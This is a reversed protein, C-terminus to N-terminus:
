THISHHVCVIARPSHLLLYLLSFRENPFPSTASMRNLLSDIMELLFKYNGYSNYSCFCVILTHANWTM